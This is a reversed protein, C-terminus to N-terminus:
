DAVALGLPPSRHEMAAIGPEDATSPEILSLRWPRLVAVFGPPDSRSAVSVRGPWQEVLGRRQM